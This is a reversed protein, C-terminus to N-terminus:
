KSAAALSHVRLGALAAELGAASSQASRCQLKIDGGDIPVAVAGTVFTTDLAEGFDLGQQSWYFVSAQLPEGGATAALPALGRGLLKIQREKFTTASYSLTSLDSYLKDPLLLQGNAAIQGEVKEFRLDCTSDDKNSLMLRGSAAAAEGSGSLGSPILFSYRGDASVFMMQGQAGGSAPVIKGWTGRPLAPSTAFTVSERAVVAKVQYRGKGNSSRILVEYRGTEPLFYEIFADGPANPNANRGPAPKGTAVIRGNRQLFAAAPFDSSRVEIRVGQGAKGEIFWIHRDDEAPGSLDEGTVNSEQPVNFALPRPPYKPAKAPAADPKSSPASQAHAAAPPALSLGLSTVVLALMAASLPFQRPDQSSM